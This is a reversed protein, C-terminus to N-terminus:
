IVELTGKMLCLKKSNGNLKMNTVRGKNYFLLLKKYGVVGVKGSNTIVRYNSDEVNDAKTRSLVTIVEPESGFEPVRDAVKLTTMSGNRQFKLGDTRNGHGMFQMVEAKSYECTNMNTSDIIFISKVRSNETLKKAYAFLLVSM